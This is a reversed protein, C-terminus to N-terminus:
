DVVWDNPLRPFQPILTGAHPTPHFHLPLCRVTNRAKFEEAENHASDLNASLAMCHATWSPQRFKHTQKIAKDVLDVEMQQKNM